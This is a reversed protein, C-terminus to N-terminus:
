GVPVRSCSRSHEAKVYCSPSVGVLAKFERTFDGAHGFGLRSAVAAIKCQERLLHCAAVIRIQRLWVKGTIGLSEEAVRAFTRKGMGLSEGLVGVRWGCEEFRPDLWVCRNQDPDLFWWFGDAFVIRQRCTFPIKVSKKTM